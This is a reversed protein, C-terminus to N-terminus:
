CPEVQGKMWMLMEGTISHWCMAGPLGRVAARSGGPLNVSSHVSSYAQRLHDTCLSCFVGLSKCIPSFRLVISISIERGGIARNFPYLTWQKGYRCCLPLAITYLFSSSIRYLSKPWLPKRTESSHKPVMVKPSSHPTHRM